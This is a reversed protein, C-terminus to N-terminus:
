LKYGTYISGGSNSGKQMHVLLQTLLVTSRQVSVAQLECTKIVHRVILLAFPRAVSYGCQSM